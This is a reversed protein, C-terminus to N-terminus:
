RRLLGFAFERGLAGHALNIWVLALPELLRAARLPGADQPEFGLDAALTAVTAKAAADDGAYLLVARREGYRPNAMVEAGITNFAKVVRAGLGPYERAVWGAIQEAGSSAPGFLVGEPGLANTCDVLVKGGLDGAAAVASQAGAWPTALVVVAAGAAAEALGAARAAPLKALAAQAKDSGADRVGFTVEHGAALWGGALATGVRGTGIIAIKFAM